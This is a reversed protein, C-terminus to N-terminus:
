DHVQFRAGDVRETAGATFKVVAVAARVLLRRQEARPRHRDPRVAAEEDALALAVADALDVELGPGDVADGARGALAVTTVAARRAVGGKVPRLLQVDIGLSINVHDIGLVVGDAPDVGRRAHHRGQRAAALLAAVTVASRRVLRCEAPRVADADAGVPRD